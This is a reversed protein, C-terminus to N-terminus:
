YWMGRHLHENELLIAGPRMSPQIIVDGGRNQVYKSISSQANTVSNGHVEQPTLNYAGAPPGVQAYPKSPDYGIPFAPTEKPIDGIAMEWSSWMSSNVRPTPATLASLAVPSFTGYDRSPTNHGSFSEYRKGSPNGGGIFSNVAPHFRVVGTGAYVDMITPEMPRPMNPSQQSQQNTKPAEDISNPQFDRSAEPLCPKTKDLWQAVREQGAHIDSQESSNGAFLKKNSAAM